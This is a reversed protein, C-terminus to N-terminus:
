GKESRKLTLRSTYDVPQTVETVQREMVRRATAAFRVRRTIEAALVELLGARYALAKLQNSSLNSQLQM